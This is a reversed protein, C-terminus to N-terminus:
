YWPQEDGNTKRPKNSNKKKLLKLKKKGRKLSEIENELIKIGNVIFEKSDILEHKPLGKVYLSLKM